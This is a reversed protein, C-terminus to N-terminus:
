GGGGPPTGVQEHCTQYLQEVEPRPKGHPKVQLAQGLVPDPVDLGKGRLCEALKVQWDHYVPDNVHAQMIPNYQQCAQMAATMKASDVNKPLTITGNPLPDAMDIGHDRLCAVFRVSNDQANTTSPATTPASQGTGGCGALGAVLALAAITRGRM